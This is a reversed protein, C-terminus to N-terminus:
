GGDSGLNKTCLALYGSPPAYEFNGYGNEDQNASSVDFASCGGFNWALSDTDYASCGFFQTGSLVAGYTPQNNAAGTGSAGSTPDGSDQWVGNKSMYVYGNDVDVAVGIIDDDAWTDGYTENGAGNQINGTQCRYGWGSVPSSLYTSPVCASTGVGILTGSSGGNVDVAYCEAYWKGATMGITSKNTKNTATWLLKCNGETFTTPNDDNDLLNMVAFNNTPTDTAQDAATLRTGTFDNSNGSVDQGFDTSDKMDLYFGNTGFTLESPDKPKWITPSASDFEGFDSAAYQTGDIWIFEAMYGDFYPTAQDTDKGIAQDEAQGFKLAADQAPYTASGFSTIQTGNVYIKVRNTDTAQTTDYAVCFHYWASPDRYFENTQIDISTSAAFVRFKGASADKRFRILDRSSSGASMITGDKNNGLKVWVSLTGIKDSDGAGSFTKSLYTTDDDNFRCSNDVTYAEVAASKAGIILPM